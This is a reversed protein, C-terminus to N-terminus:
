SGHHASGRLAAAVAAPAAAHRTHRPPRRMCYLRRYHAPTAAAAAGMCCIHNSRMGRGFAQLSRAAAPPMTIAPTPPRLLPLLLPRRLRQASRDLCLTIPHKPAIARM